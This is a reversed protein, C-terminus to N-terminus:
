PAERPLARSTVMDVGTGLVDPLVVQGAQVPAELVIERLLDAVDFLAAKPLPETSRVPVLPLAGGEVRVTTTLTRKPASLEEQVFAIGRKCAQGEVAILQDDEVTAQISCGVPCTVCIFERIEPM